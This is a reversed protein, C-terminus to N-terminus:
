PVSVVPAGAMERQDELAQKESRGLSSSSQDASKSSSVTQSVSGTELGLLAKARAVPDASLDDMSIGNMVVEFEPLSNTEGGSIM